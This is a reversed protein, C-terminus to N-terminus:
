DFYITFITINLFFISIYFLKEIYICNIGNRYDESDCSGESIMRIRLNAARCVNRIILCKELFM